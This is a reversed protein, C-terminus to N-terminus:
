GWTLDCSPPSLLSRFEFRLHTTYSGCVSQDYFYATPHCRGPRRTPLPTDLTPTLGVVTTGVLRRSHDPRRTLRLQNTLTLQAPLLPRATTHGTVRSVLLVPLASSFTDFVESSHLLKM